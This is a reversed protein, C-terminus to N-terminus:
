NCLFGGDVSILQGTISQNMDSCMFLVLDAIEQEQQLRGTPIMQQIKSIEEESLNKKTMDTMVYGPAICNALINDKALELTLNKVLGTLANKTVTYALRQERSVSAYLSSLFLIRGHNRIKMGEVMNQILLIASKVNIDFSDDLIESSINTIGALKNVAASHVFIDVNSLDHNSIYDQVSAISGLDMENRSPKIVNAHSDSFVEAIKKGIGRSAGTIFATKGRYDFM